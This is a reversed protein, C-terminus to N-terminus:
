RPRTFRLETGPPRQAVLGLDAPDVVAIVPYGGTVPHDALMVIPQGDPPVQIAGEVIGESRLEDRRSRQLREGVLRVGVRDSTASVEWTTSVLRDLAGDVFWDVRPGPWVRIPGDLSRPVAPQTAAPTGPDAGIGMGNPGNAGDAGTVGGRVCLYARAGGRLRGIRVTAGAPVVTPAGWGLVPGGDVALDCPSGTLAVMVPRNTRISLGGSTEFAGAGADNGVLRNGLQLAALDAAGGRSRGVHALGTRGADRVSGAIGWALVEIATM